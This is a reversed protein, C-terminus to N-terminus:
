LGDQFAGKVSSVRKDPGFFRQIVFVQFVSLIGVIFIKLFTLNKISKIIDKLITTHRYKRDVLYKLSKEIERFVKTIENADEIVSKVEKDKAIKTIRGSELYGSFEFSIHFDKNDKPYFCLSYEGEPLPRGSNYDGNQKNNYEFIPVQSDKKQFVVNLKEATDSTVLFNVEIIDPEELKKHFCYKDRESDIRLLLCSTMTLTLLLLSILQLSSTM